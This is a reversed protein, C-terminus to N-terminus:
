RTATVPLTWLNVTRGGVAQPTSILRACNQEDCIQVRAYSIQATAVKVMNNAALVTLAIAIITLVCKTYSDIM